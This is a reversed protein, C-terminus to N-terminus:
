FIMSLGNVNHQWAIDTLNTMRGFWNNAIIRNKNGAEHILTYDLSEISCVLLVNMDEFQLYTLHKGDTLNKQLDNFIIRCLSWFKTELSISIDNLTMMAIHLGVHEYRDLPLSYRHRLNVNLDYKFNSFKSSSENLWIDKVM